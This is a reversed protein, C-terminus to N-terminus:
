SLINFYFLFYFLRSKLARIFVNRSTTDHHTVSYKFKAVYPKRDFFLCENKSVSFDWLGTKFSKKHKKLDRLRMRIAIQGSVKVLSSHENPLNVSVLKSPNEVM